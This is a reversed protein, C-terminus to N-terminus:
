PPWVLTASLLSFPPELLLDLLQLQSELDLYCKRNMRHAGLQLRHDVWAAPSLGERRQELTFPACLSPVLMYQTRLNSGHKVHIHIDESKVVLWRPCHITFDLM